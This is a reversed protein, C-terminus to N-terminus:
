HVARATEETPHLMGALEAARLRQALATSFHARGKESLHDRVGNFLSGEADAASFDWIPVGTRRAVEARLAKLDAVQEAARWSGSVPPVVIICRVGKAALASAIREYEEAAKELAPSLAGPAAAPAVDEARFPAKRLEAANPPSQLWAQLAQTRFWESGDQSPATLVGWFRSWNEAVLARRHRVLASRGLLDELRNELTASASPGAQATGPADVLQPVSLELLELRVGPHAAADLAVRELIQLSSSPVAANFGAWAGNSGLSSLESAVRAPDVGDNLRSTGVYVISLPGHRELLALKFDVRDAAARLWREGARAVLEACALVLALGLVYGGFRRGPSRPDVAM